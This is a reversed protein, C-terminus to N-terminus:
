AILTDPCRSSVMPSSGTDPRIAACSSRDGRASRGRPRDRRAVDDRRSSRARRDDLDRAARRRNRRALRRNAVPDDRASPALRVLAHRAILDSDTWEDVHRRGDASDLRLAHRRVARTGGRRAIGRAPVCRGRHIRARRFPRHRARRRSGRLRLRRFLTGDCRLGDLAVLRTRQLARRAPCGAHLLRNGRVRVLAPVCRAGGVLRLLDRALDPPDRPASDARRSEVGHLRVGRNTARRRALSDHAGAIERSHEM